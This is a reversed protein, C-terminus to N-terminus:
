APMMLRYGVGWENIVHKTPSVAALKRRLRSAHSDLTRTRGTSRFGWVDRLLEDKTYVRTPQEALKVLLEYEKTPLFVRSGAVRVCRTPRDIAIEGARVVEDYPRNVRRLVARIRARLEEYHFPRGLDDDAGRELARARDVPDASGMGLVIAPVDRDWSRGPEGERLRRVLDLEATLVLDPRDREALDLAVSSLEVGLVRFGDQELHRELFGRTVPEPEALLLAGSMSVVTVASQRAALIDM